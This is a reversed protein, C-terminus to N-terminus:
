QNDEVLKEVLYQMLLTNILFYNEQNPGFNIAIASNLLGQSKSEEKNKIIWEKKISISDKNSMTTKCEILLNANKNIVDGKVFNGAGSNSVQFGGLKKIVSKEQLDSYYRTTGEKAM